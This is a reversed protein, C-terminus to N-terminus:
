AEGGFVVVVEDIPEDATPDEVGPLEAVVEEEGVLRASGESGKELRLFM